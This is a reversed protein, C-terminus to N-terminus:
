PKAEIDGYDSVKQRVNGYNWKESRLKEGGNYREEVEVMLIIKTAVEITAAVDVRSKAGTATANTGAVVFLM